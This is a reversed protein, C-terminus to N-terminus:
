PRAFVMALRSMAWAPLVVVVTVIVADNMGICTIGERLYRDVYGHLHLVMYVIGL